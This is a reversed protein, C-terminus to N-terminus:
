LYHTFYPTAMRAPSRSRAARISAGKIEVYNESANKNKKNEPIYRLVFAFLLIPLAIGLHADLKRGYAWVSGLISIGLFALNSM